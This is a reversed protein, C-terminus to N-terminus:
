KVEKDEFGRFKLIRHYDEIQDVEVWFKGAIDHVYIPTDPLMDYMVSEWWVSHKQHNVMEIMHNKYKNIFDKGLKAIGLNEGTTDAISLDKGHRILINNEYHFRYDANIIRTSDVMLVPSHVEAKLEDVVSPEVFLDGSMILLDEDDRIYDKAFWISAIGNTVDYFPNYIYRIGDDQLTDMIYDSKYGVCITIDTIGKERLMAITYQLLTVGGIDVMSKPREDIYRSIRTGMGAALIIGRM